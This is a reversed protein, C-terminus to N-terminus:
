WVKGGKIDRVLLWILTISGVAVFGLSFIILLTLFLKPFVIM